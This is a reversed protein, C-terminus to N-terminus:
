SSTIALYGPVTRARSASSRKRSILSLSPIQYPPLIEPERVTRAPTSRELGAIRKAPRKTQEHSAPRPPSEKANNQGNRSYNETSIPSRKTWRSAEEM